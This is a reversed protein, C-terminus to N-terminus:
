LLLFRAILFALLVGTASALSISLYVKWSMRTSKESLDKKVKVGSGKKSSHNKYLWWQGNVDENAWTARTGKWWHANKNLKIIKM